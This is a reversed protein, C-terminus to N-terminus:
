PAHWYTKCDNRVRSPPPPTLFLDMDKKSCPNWSGVYIKQPDKWELWPWWLHLVMAFKDMHKVRGGDRAKKTLMVNGL